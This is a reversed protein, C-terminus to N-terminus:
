LLRDGDLIMIMIMMLVMIMLLDDPHDNDDVILHKIKFPHLLESIVKMKPELNCNNSLETTM